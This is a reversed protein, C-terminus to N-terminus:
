SRIVTVGAGAIKTLLHRLWIEFTVWFPNQHVIFTIGIDMSPDGPVFHLDNIGQGV